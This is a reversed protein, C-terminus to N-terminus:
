RAELLYFSDVQTTVNNTSTQNAVEIKVYDNIDLETKVSMTFVALDTGGQFNNIQKTQTGRPIFTATSSDYQTVRLTILESATGSVAIAAIVKYERPNNGKNRLQGASPSDFHQLDSSVWTTAALDKFVGITDIVTTAGSTINLRGGEFTNTMGVNGTWSSALDSALINPTINTDTADFSGSRTVVANQIQLTSPVPFNSPVFDVLCASAPLDVNMNCRFRSNMVFGVGAKFLAYAGDTLGRTISTDILFGGVWNGKLILEPTGGFRGTGVELGQRYESITGLSSCDDYNVRTLEFANFGTASEIFYVQSGVGSTTVTYDVGLLDGSGGAPSTFMTYGSASSILKSVNFSHGMLNLGGPPIEITQSGMNIIGDILYVKSSDLTGSLDSATKVLVLSASEKTILDWNGSGLGDAVYVQGTTALSVGKPEHLGAEAIDKHEITM